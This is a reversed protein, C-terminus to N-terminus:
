EPVRRRCGEERLGGGAPQRGFGVEWFVAEQELWWRWWWCKREERMGVEKGESKRECDLRKKNERRKEGVGHEEQRGAEDRRRGDRWTTIDSREGWKKLENKLLIMRPLAM